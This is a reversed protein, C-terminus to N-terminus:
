SDEIKASRENQGGVWLWNSFFPDTWLNRWFSFFFWFGFIINYVLFKFFLLQVPHDFFWSLQTDITIPWGIFILASITSDLCRSKVIEREKAVTSSVLSGWCNLPLSSSTIVSLLVSTQDPSKMIHFILEPSHDPSSQSYFPRPRNHAVKSARKRM